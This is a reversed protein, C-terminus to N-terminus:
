MGNQITREIINNQIEETLDVFYASYGAVRVLINRYKEPEKQAARLTEDDLVNIQIHFGGKAFHARFVAEIIDLGKEGECINPDFRQNLLMGSTPVLPDCAALSNVVATPGNKDMGAMPSANDALPTTALRGDPTAGILKGLEVNYAQTAIVLTFPGGMADRYKRSEQDLTDVLWYSYKDVQEIDNGFKPARNVLMQRKDEHGEFNHDLMDILADMSISKKNFVCEEIAAFSDVINAIGTIAIASFHHDSGKQQLLKGKEICGVSLASGIITPLTYTHGSLTRNYMNIFKEIFFAQQKEYAQKLDEINEFGRPDGTQPGIQTGTVHDFGNHLMIDFVKIPNFYGSNSQFDSKGLVLPEICGCIGWNRAEKLTFGIQLLNTIATTDNYFSPHGGTDRAAKIALRFTEEDINPHYRFSICPEDTQLDLLCRLFVRTLENCADKGNEKVGGLIIHMWLPCGPDAISEKYGRIGWMEMVKLKLEHIIDAFHDEDKGEAKEKEYFKLMYQDYRGLNHDGGAVELTLALHHFWILQTAQLFTQPPNEPVVRCNEAMLLLEQKRKEDECVAAKEEAHDAYRHAFDIIAEMVIIMSEWAIEQEMDYVDNIKHEALKKKCDDIYYRYGREVFNDYDPSHNMTSLNSIGHTMLGSKIIDKTADDILSDTVDGFTQGRWVNVIKWLEDKDEKSRFLLNESPRTELTDFDDYLWKATEPYLVVSQIQSGQHGAMQEDEDIFIDRNKLYYEFAKARRLIYNDMTPRSYYDTILRARDLDFTAQTNRVRESLKTIRDTLM